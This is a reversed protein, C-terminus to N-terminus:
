LGTANWARKWVARASKLDVEQLVHLAAHVFLSALLALCVRYCAHIFRAFTEYFAFFLCTLSAVRAFDVGFVETAYAYGVAALGVTLTAVQQRM